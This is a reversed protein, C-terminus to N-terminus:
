NLTALYYCVKIPAASTTAAPQQQARQREEHEVRLREVDGRRMYKNPRPADDEILKRKSAIESKLFDM